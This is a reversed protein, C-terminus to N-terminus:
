PASIKLSHVGGWIHWTDRTVHWTDRTVHWMDCTVHGKKKHVFHHLKDTSPRNDVPRVGDLKEINLYKVAQEIDKM